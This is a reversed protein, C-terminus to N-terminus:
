DQAEQVTGLALDFAAVGAFAAPDDVGQFGLPLGLTFQTLIRVQISRISPPSDIRGMQKHAGAAKEKANAWRLFETDTQVPDTMGAPYLSATRPPKTGEM